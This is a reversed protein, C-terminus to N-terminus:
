KETKKVSINGNLADCYYLTGDIADVFATVRPYDDWSHIRGEDIDIQSYRKRKRNPDELVFRWMPRYETPLANDDSVAATYRLAAEKVTYTLNKALGTGVAKKAEEYTILEGPDVTESEVRYARPNEIFYPDGNGAFVIRLESGLIRTSGYQNIISGDESVPVGFLKRTYSLSFMVGDGDNHLVAIKSAEFEANEDFLGIDRLKDVIEQGQTLAEAITMESNDNMYYKDDPYNWPLYIDRWFYALMNNGTVNKYNYLSFSEGTEYLSIMCEDSSYSADPDVIEDSIRAEPPLTSVYAITIDEKSLDAGLIERGVRAAKEALGSYDKNKDYLLPERIKLLSVKDAEIPDLTCDFIISGIKEKGESDVTVEGSIRGEQEEARSIVDEPVENCGALLLAAALVSLIKGKM